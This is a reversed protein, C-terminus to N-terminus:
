FENNLYNLITDIKLVRNKIKSLHRERLMRDKWLSLHIRWM